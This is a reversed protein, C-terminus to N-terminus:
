YWSVEGDLIRLSDGFIGISFSRRIYIADSKMAGHSLISFCNNSGSLSSRDGGAALRVTTHVDM